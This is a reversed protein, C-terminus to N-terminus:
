EGVILLIMAGFTEEYRYFAECVQQLHGGLNTSRTPPCTQTRVHTGESKNQM